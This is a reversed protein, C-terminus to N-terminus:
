VVLEALDQGGDTQVKVGCPGQGSVGGLRSQVFAGREKQLRAFLHAPQRELQARGHQVVAAQFRVHAADGFLVPLPGAALDLNHTAQGPRRNRRFHRDSAKAHRLFRQGVDHPVGLRPV